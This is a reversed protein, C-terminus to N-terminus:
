LLVSKTPSFCAKHLYNVLTGTYCLEYVNNAEPLQVQPKESSLNIHWVGTDADRQLKLIVKGNKNFIIFGDIKFTVAYSENCPQGVLILSNNAMDSFCTISISSQETRPHRFIRHPNFGHHRWQATQCAVAFNIQNQQPMDCQGVLLSRYM